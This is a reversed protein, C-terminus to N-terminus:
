FLTYIEVPLAKHEQDDELLSFLMLFPLLCGTWWNGSKKAWALFARVWSEHPSEELSVEDLSGHSDLTNSDRPIWLSKKDSPRALKLSSGARGVAVFIIYFCIGKLLLRAARMYSYAMTNWSSYVISIIHPKWVGLVALGLALIVGIGFWQPSVLLSLLVGVLCGTLTSIVLWFGRLRGRRAPNPLLLM